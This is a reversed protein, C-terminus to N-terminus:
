AESITADAVGLQTLRQQARQRKNAPITQLLKDLADEDLDADGLQTGAPDEDAGKRKSAEPREVAM